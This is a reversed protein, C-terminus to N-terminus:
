LCTLGEPAVAAAASACASAHAARSQGASACACKNGGCARVKSVPVSFIAMEPSISEVKWCDPGNPITFADLIRACYVVSGKLVQVPRLAASRKAKMARVIHLQHAEYTYPKM